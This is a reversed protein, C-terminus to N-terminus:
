LFAFTSSIGQVLKGWRNCSEFLYTCIQSQALREIFINDLARGKGDRSIRINNQELLNLFENSTFQSSQDSNFIDPKSYESLAEQLANNCFDVELSNSLSWSLIKSTYVNIVTVLYM